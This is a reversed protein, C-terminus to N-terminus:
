CRDKLIFETISGGKIIALGKRKILSYYQEYLLHTMSGNTIRHELAGVGPPMKIETHISDRM